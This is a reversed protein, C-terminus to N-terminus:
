YTYGVNYASTLGSADTSVGFGAFGIVKGLLWGEDGPYMLNFGM